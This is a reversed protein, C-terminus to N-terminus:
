FAYKLIFINKKRSEALVFTQGTGPQWQTAAHPVPHLVPHLLLESEYRFLNRKSMSDLQPLSASMHPWAHLRQPIQM